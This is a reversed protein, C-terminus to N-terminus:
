LGGAARRRVDAEAAEASDALADVAEVEEPSLTRREARAREYIQAIRAEAASRNRRVEQETAWHRRFAEPGDGQPAPEPDRRAGKLARKAEKRKAKARLRREELQEMAIQHEAASQEAASQASQLMADFAVRGQVIEAEIQQRDREIKLPVLAAQQAAYVLEGRARVYDAAARNYRAATELGGTYRRVAGVRRWEQFRTVISPRVWGFDDATAFGGVPGGRGAGVPLNHDGPRLVSFKPDGDRYTPM